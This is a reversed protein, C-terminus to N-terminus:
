LNVVGKLKHANRKHVAQCLNARKNFSENDAESLSKLFTEKEQESMPLFVMTFFEVFDYSFGLEGEDTQGDWLEATPVASLIEDIVGIAKGVQFVQNKHLDNILQLDVVGDGAKCFYGLYHDEDKNGTGLVISPNGRDSLLQTVFYLIPTRIYSQLQGYAFQSPQWETKEFTDKQYWNAMESGVSKSLDLINTIIPHYFPPIKANQCQKKARVVSNTDIIAVPLLVPVVIKIPSQELESARVALMFTVASDIGGSLGVVCGFLNNKTMYENLAKCKKNAWETPDFGISERYNNLLEKEQKSLDM